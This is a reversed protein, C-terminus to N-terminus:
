TKEYGRRIVAELAEAARRNSARIDRETTAAERMMRMLIVESDRYDRLIALQARTVHGLRAAQVAKARKEWLANKGGFAKALTECEMELDMLVQRVNSM